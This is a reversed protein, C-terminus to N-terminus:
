KEEGFWETRSITVRDVETDNGSKFKLDVLAIQRRVEEKRAHDRRISGAIAHDRSYGMDENEHDAM